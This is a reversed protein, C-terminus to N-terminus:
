LRRVTRLAVGAAAIRAIATAADEIVVEMHHGSAHLMRGDDVLIAVHGPWFLLDGRRVDAPLAIAEGTGGAVVTGVEREQPGTDRPTVRGALRLALQVLGSCDIGDATTGGWLYPTGVFREAVAVWDPETRVVPVLHAAVIAEGGPLLAFGLGRTEAAGVIAVESGLTLVARPPRKMEAEPYVFTRRVIVRHTPAPDHPGLAAVPVFGRYGDYLREVAIWGAEPEGHLRVPEGALLETDLGADDRPERRMPASGAAIRRLDAGGRAEGGDNETETAM